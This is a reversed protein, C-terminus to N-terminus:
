GPRAVRGFRPLRKLRYSFRLVIQEIVLQRQNHAAETSDQAPIIGILASIMQQQGQRPHAPM